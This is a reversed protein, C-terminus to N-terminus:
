CPDRLLATWDTIHRKLLLLLVRREAGQNGSTKSVALQFTPGMSVLAAPFKRLKASEHTGIVAASHLLYTHHNVTATGAKRLNECTAMLNGPAAQLCPGLSKCLTTSQTFATQCSMTLQCCLQCAGACDTVIDQLGHEHGVCDLDGYHRRLETGPGSCSRRWTSGYCIRASYADRMALNGRVGAVRLMHVSHAAAAERQLCLLVM